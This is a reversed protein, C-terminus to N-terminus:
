LMFYLVSWMKMYHNGVRFCFLRSCDISCFTRTMAQSFVRSSEVDDVIIILALFQGPARLAELLESRESPNNHVVM